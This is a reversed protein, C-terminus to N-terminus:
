QPRFTSFLLSGAEGGMLRPKLSWIYLVMWVGLWGGWGVCVTTIGCILLSLFGM